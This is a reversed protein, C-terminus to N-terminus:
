GGYFMVTTGFVVDFPLWQYCVPVIFSDFVFLIFADSSSHMGTSNGPVFLIVGCYMLWISNCWIGASCHIVDDFVADTTVTDNVAISVDDTL